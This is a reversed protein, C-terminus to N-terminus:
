FLGFHVEQPTHYDLSQHPRANNYFKFYENIGMRAERPSLYENPYVNEYKLARWLREIFINDFARGRHDM